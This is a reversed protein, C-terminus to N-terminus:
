KTRFQSVRDKLLGALSRSKLMLEFLDQEQFTLYAEPDHALKNREKRIGELDKYTSNDVLGLARLFRTSNAYSLDPLESAIEFGKSMLSVSLLQTSSFEISSVHHLFQQAYIWKRSDPEREYGGLPEWFPCTEDTVQCRDPEPWDPIKIKPCMIITHFHAHTGKGNGHPDPEVSVNLEADLQGIKCSFPLNCERDAEKSKKFGEPM